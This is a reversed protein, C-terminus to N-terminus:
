SCLPSKWYALTSSSHIRSLVTCPHSPVRSYSTITMIKFTINSKKDPSAPLLASYFHMFDTPLLSRRFINEHNRTSSSHIHIKRIDSLTRDSVKGKLRHHWVTCEALFRRIQVIPHKGNSRAIGQLHMTFEEMNRPKKQVQKVQQRLSSEIQLAREQNYTPM